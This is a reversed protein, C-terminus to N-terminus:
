KTAASAPAGAITVTVPASLTTAGKNDTAVATLMCSGLAANTWTVGYPSADAEGVKNRGAYFEVKAISGDRDMAQAAISVGASANGIAAGDDPSTIRVIPRLNAETGSPLPPAFDTAKTIAVNCWQAALPYYKAAAGKGVPSDYFVRVTVNSGTNATDFNNYVFYGQDANEDSSSLTVQPEDPVDNMDIVTTVANDSDGFNWVYASFVYETNPLLKVDRQFVSSDAHSVVSAMAVVGNCAPVMNTGAGVSMDHVRTWGVPATYGNTGLPGKFQFDGNNILQVKETGPIISSLELTTQAGAPAAQGLWLCALVFLPSRTTILKKM